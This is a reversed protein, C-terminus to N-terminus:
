RNNDIYQHLKSISMKLDFVKNEKIVICWLYLIIFLISLNKFYYIFISSIMTLIIISINTVKNAYIFSKDNGFYLSLFGHLVRGGDLPYIPILNFTFIILNIYFVIDKYLFNININAFILILILNIMPGAIAILIDSKVTRKDDLDAQKFEILFGFPMLEMKDPKYGLILGMVLHGMEHIFGFFLTWLYLYIQGTFFFLALFILIKLDIRFRM